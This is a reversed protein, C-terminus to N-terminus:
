ATKAKSRKRRRLGVMSALGLGMLGATAPLPVPAPGEAFTVSGSLNNVSPGFGFFPGFDVANSFDFLISLAGDTILNAFVSNAITATGTLVSTHQTGADNAFDFADNGTNNDFVRGLSFGDISVDVYESVGNLDGSLSFTFTADGTVTTPTVLNNFAINPGNAGSSAPGFNVTAASASTAASVAFITALLTRKM